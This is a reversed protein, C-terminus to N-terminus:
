LRVRSAGHIPLDPANSGNGPSDTTLRYLMQAAKAEANFSAGVPCIFLSFSPFVSAARLWSAAPAAIGPQV